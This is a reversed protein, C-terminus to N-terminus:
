IFHLNDLSMGVIQVSPVLHGHNVLGPPPDAELQATTLSTAYFQQWHVTLLEWNSAAAGANNPFVANANAWWDAGLNAVLQATHSTTRMQAEVFVGEVTGPAFSAFTEPYFHDNYGNAPADATVAGGRTTSTWPVSTNNAFDALYHAGIVPDTAQSQVEVWQGTNLLVFSTFDRIQVQAHTNASVSAGAEPYIQGWGTVASYGDPPLSGPVAGGYWPFDSPVGLPYVTEDARTNQDIADTLSNM